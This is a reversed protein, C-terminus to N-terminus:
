PIVQIANEEYEQYKQEAWEYVEESDTELLARPEGGEDVGMQVKEEFLGLFYPIEGEYVHATFRGTPLMEETLEMFDANSQITEAVSPAVVSDVRGGEQVVGQHVAEYGHLGCLPLVVRPHETDEILKVHRNIMSYPNGPKPVLLEADQLCTLDFGFETGPTWRFFPNLGQRLQISDIINSFEVAVMRGLSTLEFRGNSYQALEATELERTSRDITSRSVDLEDVLGRKDSPEELLKEVVDIRSLLIDFIELAKDRESMPNTYWENPDNVM